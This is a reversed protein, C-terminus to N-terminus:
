INYYYIISYRHYVHIYTYIYIYIYIYICTNLKAAEAHRRQLVATDWRLRDLYLPWPPEEKSNSTVTNAIAQIYIYIYIYMCVYM